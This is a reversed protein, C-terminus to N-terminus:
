RGGYPGGGGRMRVYARLPGASTQTRVDAAVSGSPSFGAIDDRNIRRRGSTVVYDSRVRGSIRICTSTGPVEVFGAGYQPCARGSPEYPRPRERAGAGGAVLMAAALSLIGARM